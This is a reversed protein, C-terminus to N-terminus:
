SVSQKAELVRIRQELSFLKTRQDSEERELQAMRSFGAALSDLLSLEPEPKKAEMVYGAERYFWARIGHKTIFRYTQLAKASPRESDFAYHAIVCEVSDERLQNMENLNSIHWTSDIYKSVADKGVGCMEALKTKSIYAKGTLTNVTVENGVFTTMESM